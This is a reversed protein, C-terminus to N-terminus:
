RKVDRGVNKAWIYALTRYLLHAFKTYPAFAILDFVLILHVIYAYYAGVNGAYRLIETIIGTIAVGFLTLLFLM